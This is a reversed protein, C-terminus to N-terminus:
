RFCVFLLEKNLMRLELLTDISEINRELCIDLNTIFNDSAFGTDVLELDDLLDNIFFWENASISILEELSAASAFCNIDGNFKKFIEVKRLTIM